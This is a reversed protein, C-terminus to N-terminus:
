GGSSRWTSTRTATPSRSRATPRARARGPRAGRAARRARRRLHDGARRADVRARAVAAVDYPGLRWDFASRTTSRASPPTRRSPSARCRCSRRGAALVQSLAAAVRAVQGETMEPFFPLAISRAAVDECVPFEGERHGFQERYYSMLHIAPFYPKSPIGREGLARVVGDRDVGRPLQVVFVFWGRRDGGADPCPLECGRSRRGAGRPLLAAVRARAPSCRTSGSSSPSGSRAPSTRCATTSASGTTTSGTWTPRAARTASPTSGSRSRRTPRAHGDRGRRDDAAQQRLLSCPRTAARRRGARRRRPRRRAGRLRGRRDAARAARVGAHRGPLRLHPGAAAGGHARHGGRRRRRPRPEADGPRHRRVGAARARLRRRQRQRRVLVPTTVVEDGDSVGVARLALHLGATGSSVASAHARASARPSRRSSSPWCRASRCGARACCRSCASRRARRRAGAPRAPDGRTVRSVSVRAAHVDQAAPRDRAPRRQM